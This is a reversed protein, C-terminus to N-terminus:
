NGFGKTVKYDSMKVIKNVSKLEKIVMHSEQGGAESSHMEMLFGEANGDFSNSTFFSSLIPMNSPTKIDVENSLWLVITGQNTSEVIYESSKYGLITRTKGTKKLGISETPSDKENVEDNMNGNMSEMMQSSMAMAQKENEDINIFVKREDDMIMFETGNSADIMYASEESSLWSTFNTKEGSVDIMEYSIKHDFSYSSPLDINGSSNMMQQMMEMAKTADESSYSTNGENNYTESRESSSSAPRSMKSVEEEYLAQNARRKAYTNEIMGDNTLTYSFDLKVTGRMQLSEDTENNGGSGTFSLYISSQDLAAITITGEKLVSGVGTPMGPRTYYEFNSIMGTESTFAQQDYDGSHNDSNIPVNILEISMGYQENSIANISVGNKYFTCVVDVFTSLTYNESGFSLSAFGDAEGQSIIEDKGAKERNDTKKGFLREVKLSLSDVSGEVARDMKEEAKRELKEEAKRKLKKLLQAEAHFPNALAVLLASLVMLYRTAKLNSM